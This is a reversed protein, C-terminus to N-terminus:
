LKYGKNKLMEESKRWLENQMEVDHSHVSSSAIASKKYYYGNRLKDKDQTALYISTKAGDDASILFPMKNFFSLLGTNNSGFGTKVVGPHLSFSSLKQKEYKNVLSKAFMINMLKVSGYQKWGGFKRECNLNDIEIKGMRHAESAVNIIRPDDSKLITDLILSTLYFHALHNVQFAMEFGDMSIVKDSFVGGANNILVDIHAYKNNIQNAAEKVTLLSALDMYIIDIDAEPFKTKAENIVEQAKNTDRALMIVKFGFTAMKLVTAKGIGSTGGTIIINKGKM